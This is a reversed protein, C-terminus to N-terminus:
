NTPAWKTTVDSVTITAVHGDFYAFATSNGGYAEFREPSWAWLHVGPANGTTSTMLWDANVPAIMPARSPSVKEIIHGAVEGEIRLNSSLLTARWVHPNPWYSTSRYYGKRTADQFREQFGSQGALVPSIESIAHLNDAMAGLYRSQGKNVYGPDYRPTSTPTTPLRDRNDAMYMLYASAVQRLNSSCQTKRAKQRVSGVVPIIIAALIGIIAIVTLLEILTFARRHVRPPAPWSSSSPTSM